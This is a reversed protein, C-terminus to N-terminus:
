LVIKEKKINKKRDEDNDDRTKFGLLATANVTKATNRGRSHMIELHAKVENETQFAVYCKSKCEDYPCIFHSKSFHLELSPYDNYYM